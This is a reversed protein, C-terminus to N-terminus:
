IRQSSTFFFVLKILLKIVFVIYRNVDISFLEQMIVHLSYIDSKTDYKSCKMVEPAMYKLTGKDINYSQQAFEHIAVLGFDAIKILRKTDKCKKLLINEPKLDRHIIPPKQKHLFDVSELIEIFLESTIYYGIPTLTQNSMMDINDNMENMVNRSTKDCLEMRIYLLLGNNIDNNNEFWADYYKVLFKSKIKYVISYRLFEQLIENREANSEIKKIAYYGIFRKEKAKFVIGYSGSGLEEVMDYEKELFGNRLSPDNFDIITRYIVFTNEFFHSLIENFSKFHTKIPTLNLNLGCKGWFYYIKDVSLSILIDYEFHSITDIFRIKDFIRV